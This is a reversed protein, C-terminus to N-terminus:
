LDWYYAPTYRTKASPSYFSYSSQKEQKVAMLILAVDM